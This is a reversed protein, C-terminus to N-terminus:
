WGRNELSRLSFLTIRGSQALTSRAAVKLSHVLVVRIGFSRHIAGTLKRSCRSNFDTFRLPQILHFCSRVDLFYRRVFDKIHAGDVKCILDDHEHLLTKIRKKKASGRPSKDLRTLALCDVSFFRQNVPSTTLLLEGPDV